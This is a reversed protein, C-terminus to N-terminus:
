RAYVKVTIVHKRCNRVKHKVTPWGQTKCDAMDANTKASAMCKQWERMAAQRCEICRNEAFASISFLITILFLAVTKIKM